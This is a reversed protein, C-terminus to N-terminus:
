FHPTWLFYFWCESNCDQILNKTANLMLTRPFPIFEATRWGAISLYYLLSAEKAKILSGTWLFSFESNLGATSWKFLSRTHYGGQPLSTPYICLLSHWKRLILYVLSNTKLFLKREMMRFCEDQHCIHVVNNLYSFCM